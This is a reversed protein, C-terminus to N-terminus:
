VFLFDDASDPIFESTVDDFYLLYTGDYFSRYSQVGLYYTGSEEATFTLGASAGAFNDNVAVMEGGANFVGLVSNELSVGEALIEYTQGAVMEVRIADKDTPDSILGSFVQGEALDYVTGGSASADVTEQVVDLQDVSLQYIGVNDGSGNMFGAVGIYYTGSTAAQYTFQSDLGIFDDNYAVSRGREDYLYLVSDDLTLGDVAFKYYTGAVLSIKIVDRDFLPDIQGTFTDGASIQYPTQANAPADAGEIFDTGLAEIVM